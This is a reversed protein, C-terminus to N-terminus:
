PTIPITRQNPEIFDKHKIKTIIREGKRDFLTVAPRMVLGEAQCDAILSKFGERVKEYGAMLTGRGVIPVVGVNLKEAIDMMNDRELWWGDIWIDFIILSVDDRYNFGKENQIGKGYGEGYLTLPPLGLKIFKDTPFNEYIYPILVGPVQSGEDKAKLIMKSGDFIVRINTGNIKETYEWENDKLYEFAPHSWKSELLTKNHSAPDRWFITQIKTYKDL